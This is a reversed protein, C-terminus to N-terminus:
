QCVVFLSTKHIFSGVIRGPNAPLITFYRGSESGILNCYKSSEMRKCAQFFFLYISNKKLKEHLNYIFNAFRTAQSVLAVTFRAVTSFTCSTKCRQQLILPFTINHM